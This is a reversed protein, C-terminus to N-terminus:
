GNMSENRKGVTQHTAGTIIRKGLPRWSALIRSDSSHVRASNCIAAGDLSSIGAIDITLNSLVVCGILSGLCDFTAGTCPPVSPVTDPLKVNIQYLGVEGPTLRAFRIPSFNTPTYPEVNPISARANPRFDFQVLTRNAVGPAPTPSAEGSRVTPTTQGLGFASLVVTEGATAPSGNSVISGDAHTVVAPCPSPFPYTEGQDCVTVVHINDVPPAVPFWASATGGDDVSLGNPGMYGVYLVIGGAIEFPIQVTL